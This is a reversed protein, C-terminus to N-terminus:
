RKQRVQGLGACSYGHRCPRKFLAAVRCAQGDFRGNGKNGLHVLEGQGGWGALDEGVTFLLREALSPGQEAASELLGDLRADGRRFFLPAARCQAHAPGSRKWRRHSRSTNVARPAM